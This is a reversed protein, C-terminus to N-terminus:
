LPQYAMFGFLGFWLEITSIFVLIHLLSAPIFDLFIHVNLKVYRSRVKVSGFEIDLHNFMNKVSLVLTFFRVIHWSILCESGNTLSLKFVLGVHIYLVVKFGCCVMIVMYSYALLLM